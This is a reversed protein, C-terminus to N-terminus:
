GLAFLFMADIHLQHKLGPDGRTQSFNAIPNKSRLKFPKGKSHLDNTPSTTLLVCSEDKSMVSNSQFDPSYYPCSYLQTTQLLSFTRTTLKKLHKSHQKTRQTLAVEAGNRVALVPKQFVHMLIHVRQFIFGQSQYCCSRAKFVFNQNHQISNQQLPANLLQLVSFVNM